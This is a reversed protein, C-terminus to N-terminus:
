WRTQYRNWHQEAFHMEVDKASGGIKELEILLERELEGGENSLTRNSGAWFSPFGLPSFLPIPRPCFDGHDISISWAVDAYPENINAYRTAYSWNHKVHPHTEVGTLIKALMEMGGVYDRCHRLTSELKSDTTEVKPRFSDMIAEVVQKQEEGDTEEIVKTFFDIHHEEM